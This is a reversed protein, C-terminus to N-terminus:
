GGTCTSHRKSDSSLEYVTRGSQKPGAVVTGFKTTHLRVVTGTGAQGGPSVVWWRGGFEKLGQGNTQGAKSDDAFYYLPHGYYTVQHKPTVGLKRQKIGAGAQPQGSTKVPPWDARCTKGCKSVNKPDRTFLYVTRHRAGVVILGLKTSRTAITTGTAQARGAHGSAAAAPPTLGAAVLGVSAALMGALSGARNIM